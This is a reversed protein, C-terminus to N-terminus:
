AVQTSHGSEVRFRFNPEYNEIAPNRPNRIGAASMQAAIHDQGLRRFYRIRPAPRGVAMGQLPKV